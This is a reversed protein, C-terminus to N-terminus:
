GHVESMKVRVFTKESGPSFKEEKIEKIEYRGGRMLVVESAEAGAVETYVRPIKRGSDEIEFFVPISKGEVHMAPSMFAEAMDRRQSTSSFKEIRYIAGPKLTKLEVPTARTGRFVKGNVQPLKELVKGFSPDTRLKRYGDGLWSYLKGREDVKLGHSDETGATEDGGDGGGGESFKGAEDRPHKSEDFERLIKKIDALAGGFTYDAEEQDLIIRASHAM